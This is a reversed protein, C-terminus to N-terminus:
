NALAMMNYSHSPVMNSAKKKTIALSARNDPHVWKKKCSHGVACSGTNGSIFMKMGTQKRLGLFNIRKVEKCMTKGKTTNSLLEM